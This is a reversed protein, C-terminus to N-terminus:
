VDACHAGSRPNEGDAAHQDSIDYGALARHDGYSDRCRTQDITALPSSTEIFPLLREAEGAVGMAGVRDKEAEAWRLWEDTQVLERHPEHLFLVDVRERRM